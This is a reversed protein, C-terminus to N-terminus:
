RLVKPIHGLQAGHSHNYKELYNILTQLMRLIADCLVNHAPLIKGSSEKYPIIFFAGKM